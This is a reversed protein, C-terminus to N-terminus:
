SAYRTIFIGMLNTDFNQLNPNSSSLRGTRAVCQNFQGHITNSLWHRDDFMSPIKELYTELRQSLASRKLLLEIIKRGRATRPKIRALTGLDVSYRRSIGKEALQADTLKKTLANESQPDPKCFGTVPHQGIAKVTREKITGDKLVRQKVQTTDYPISGGYIIASLHATSSLNLPITPPLNSLVVLEEDVKKVEESTEEKLLLIKDLDVLMGNYEMEQLVKTDQNHLWVLNKFQDNRQQLIDQQHEFLKYTLVIDNHLYEALLAEPVQPTDIGHNWYEDAVVNLKNGLHYYSCIEDLSPYKIRQSSLLFEVLQCDWLNCHSFSIGYRRLWHLDFKLNFGVLIEAEQIAEQVTKIAEGYPNDNYEIPLQLEETGRKIGIYCLKNRPDFPDGKNTITTEVDIVLINKM